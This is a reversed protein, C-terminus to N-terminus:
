WRTAMLAVCDLHQQLALMRRAHLQADGSCMPCDLPEPRPDDVFRAVPRVFGHTSAKSSSNASLGVGLALTACLICLKM